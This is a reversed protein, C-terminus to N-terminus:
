DVDDVDDLDVDWDQCACLSRDGWDGVDIQLNKWDATYTFGGFLAPIKVTVDADAAFSLTGKYYEASIGAAEWKESSFTVTMLVDTIATAAISVEEGLNMVGVRVGDHSLVGAGSVVVADFHNPNYVSVLLQFTAGAKLSTMSDVISGWNLEDSCVNYQL